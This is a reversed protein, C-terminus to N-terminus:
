KVAIKKKVVMANKCESRHDNEEANWHAKQCAKSCYCYTKCGKCMKRSSRDLTCQCWACEQRIDCLEEHADKRLEAEYNELAYQKIKSAAAYWHRSLCYNRLRMASDLAPFCDGPDESCSESCKITWRMRGEMDGVRGCLSSMSSQAQANGREALPLLISLGKGTEGRDILSLALKHGFMIIPLANKVYEEVRLCVAKEFMARAKELNEKCGIGHQYMEALECCAIPHDKAAAKEYLRFAM